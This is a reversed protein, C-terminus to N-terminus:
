EPSSEEAIPISATDAIAAGLGEFVEGTVREYLEYTPSMLKYDAGELRMLDAFRRGPHALANRLCQVFELADGVDGALVAVPDPVLSESTDSPPLWGARVALALLPAPSWAEPPRKEKPWVGHTRLNPEFSNTTSLLATEIPEGM